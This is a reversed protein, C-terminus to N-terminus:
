GVQVGGLSTNGLACLPVRKYHTPTGDKHGRSASNKLLMPHANGTLKLGFLEVEPNDTIRESSLM